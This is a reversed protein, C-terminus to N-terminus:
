ITEEWPSIRTKGKIWDEMFIRSAYNLPNKNTNSRTKRTTKVNVSSLLVRNWHCTKHCYFSLNLSVNLISIGRIVHKRTVSCNNFMSVKM